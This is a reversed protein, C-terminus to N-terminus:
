RVTLSLTRLQIGSISSAPMFGNALTGGNTLTAQLKLVCNTLVPTAGTDTTFQLTSIYDAAHFVVSRGDATSFLSATSGGAHTWHMGTTDTCNANEVTWTADPQASDLQLAVADSARSVVTNDAPSTIRFPAPLTVTSTYVQGSARRLEFQGTVADTPNSPFDYLYPQGLPIFVIGFTNDFDNVPLGMQVANTGRVFYLPDGELEVNYGVSFGAFFGGQAQTRNGDDVIYFHAEMQGASLTSSDVCPGLCVMPKNTSTGHDPVVGAEGGGGCGALILLALACAGTGPDARPRRMLTKSM